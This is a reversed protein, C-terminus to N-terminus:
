DPLRRGAKLGQSSESESWVDVTVFVASLQQQLIRGTAGLTAMRDAGIGLHSGDHLLINSGRRARHNRAIGRDVNASIGDPGIPHWDFGTVNWQVTSLGLERAADIVYPRRAGHPPRFYRVPSGLVDELLSNTDLLEERIRARSQFALRPHTMTHNGVLHGAQAIGRALAPQQRVFKGILFFTARVGRSALLELLYPTVAPNPGDDYTLALELPDRGALLVRGFIQSTPYFAAYAAGGVLLGATTAAVTGALLTSRM